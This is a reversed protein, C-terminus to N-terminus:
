KDKRFMFRGVVSARTPDMRATGNEMVCLTTPYASLDRITVSSCTLLVTQLLM